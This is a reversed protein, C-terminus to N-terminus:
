RDRPYSGGFKFHIHGDVATSIERSRTVKVKSRKVKSLPCAYRTVHDVGETRRLSATHLQYAYTISVPSDPEVATRADAPSLRVVGHQETTPVDDVDSSV